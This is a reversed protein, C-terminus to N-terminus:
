RRPAGPEARELFFALVDGCALAATSSFCCAEAVVQDARTQVTVEAHRGGILDLQHVDRRVLHHAHGRREHREELVVVRVAREHARVHLTLRHRQHAGLRREDAGAISSRTAISEPTHTIAFRSPTTSLTSASRMTTRAVAPSPSSTGSM